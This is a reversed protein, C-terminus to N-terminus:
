RNGGRLTCRACLVDHLAREAIEGHEATLVLLESDQGLYVVQVARHSEDAALVIRLSNVADKLHASLDVDEQIAKVFFAQERNCLEQHDPEDSMDLVEQAVRLV